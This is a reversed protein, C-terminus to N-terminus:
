TKRFAQPQEGFNNDGDFFNKMNSDDSNPDFDSNELAFGHFNGNIGQFTDGGM